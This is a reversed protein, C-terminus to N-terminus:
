SLTMAARGFTLCVLPWRLPFLIQQAIATAATETIAPRAPQPDFEAANEGDLEAWSDNLGEDISKPSTLTPAGTERLTDIVFEPVVETCIPCNLTDPPDNVTFELPTSVVRRAPLLM